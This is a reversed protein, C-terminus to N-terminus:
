AYIGTQNYWRYFDLERYKGGPQYKYWDHDENRMINKEYLMNAYFKLFLDYAYSIDDNHKKAIKKCIRYLYTGEEYNTYGYREERYGFTSFLGIATYIDHQLRTYVDEKPDENAEKILTEISKYRM